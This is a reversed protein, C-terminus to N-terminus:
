DRFGNAQLSRTVALLLPLVRVVRFCCPHCPSLNSNPMQIGAVGCPEGSSNKLPSKAISGPNPDSTCCFVSTSDRQALYNVLQAHDAECLAASSKVEVVILHDVVLDMKFSGINIDDYYVAVPVQCEVTHGRRGLEIVLARCYIKELFGYGLKDYATYFSGIISDTLEGLLLMLCHGHTDTSRDATDTHLSQIQARAAFRSDCCSLRHLFITMM